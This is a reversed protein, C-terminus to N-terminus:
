PAPIPLTSRGLCRAGAWSKSSTSRRSSREAGEASRRRRRSTFQSARAIARGRSEWVRPLQLTRRNDPASATVLGLRHAKPIRTRSDCLSGGTPFETGSSRPSRGATRASGGRNAMEVASARAEIHCRVPALRDLSRHRARRRLERRGLSGTSIVQGINNLSHVLGLQDGIRERIRWRTPTARLAADHRSRTRSLVGPNPVNMDLVDESARVGVLGELISRETSTGKNAFRTRAAQIIECSRRM